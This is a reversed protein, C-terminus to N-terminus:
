LSLLGELSPKQNASCHARHVQIMVSFARCLTAKLQEASPGLLEPLDYFVDVGAEIMEPTIEIESAPAGAEESHDFSAPRDSCV